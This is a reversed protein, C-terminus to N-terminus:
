SPSVTRPLAVIAAVVAGYPRDSAAWEENRQNDM